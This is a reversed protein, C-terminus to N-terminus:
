LEDAFASACEAEFVNRHNMGVVRFHVVQIRMQVPVGVDASTINTQFAKAANKFWGLSRSLANMRSVGTSLGPSSRRLTVAKFSSTDGFFREVEFFDLLLPVLAPRLVRREVYRVRRVLRFIVHEFHQRIRAALQVHPVHAVVGDAVGQRTVHPHAAIVHQMGHTPVRETAQRFRRSSLLVAM